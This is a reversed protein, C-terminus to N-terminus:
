NNKVIKILHGEINLYYLGVSFQSLDIQKNDGTLYGESLCQGLTSIIKYHVNKYIQLNITNKAPNPYVKIALEENNVVLSECEFNEKIVSAAIPNSSIHDTLLSCYCNNGELYLKIWSLAMRGVAGDGGDPSNAAYHDGNKIEFLVKNTASPTQNYHINAQQSAPAIADNEGSFILVPSSHNLQPNNLYPCLAVVAAITNDIVAARQAGGGGMSWGSVALKNLDLLGKLPSSARNNEQKITELADLLAIARAEPYDYISNTGIIISVIGHSAYFPGWEEISIPLATFGPVIAISALLETKNTPYYITAGFYDPGNRIGDIETITEVNYPGPNTINEIALDNCQAVVANSCLLLILSLVIIFQSKKM